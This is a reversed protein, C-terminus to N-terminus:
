RHGLRQHSTPPLPDLGFRPLLLGCNFCRNLPPISDAAESESELTAEVSIKTKLVRSVPCSRNAQEAAMEFAIRNFGRQTKSCPTLRTIEAM